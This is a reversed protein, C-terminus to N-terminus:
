VAMMRDWCVVMMVATQADRQDVRTVVTLVAMVDVMSRVTPDAKPTALCAASSGVRLLVLCEAMEAVM